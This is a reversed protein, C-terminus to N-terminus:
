PVVNASLKVVVKKNNPDNTFLYIDRVIPGIAGPGHFAPDFLVELQAKQGPVLTESWATPNIGHGPMSFKPSVKDGIKLVVSTCACSTQMDDIKLPGTGVNEINFIKKVLGAKMSVDGADYELPEAKVQGGSPQNSLGPLFVVLGAILVSVGVAAIILKM